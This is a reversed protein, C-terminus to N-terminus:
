STRHIKDVLKLRYMHVLKSLVGFLFVKRLLIDTETEDKGTMTVHNIESEIYTISYRYQIFLKPNLMVFDPEKVLTQQLNHSLCTNPRAYSIDFQIELKNIKNGVIEDKGLIKFNDDLITFDTDPLIYRM